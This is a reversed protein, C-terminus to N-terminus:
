EFYVKQLYITRVFSVVVVFSDGRVLHSFRQEYAYFLSGHHRQDSTGKEREAGKAM